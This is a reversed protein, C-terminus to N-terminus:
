FNDMQIEYACTSLSKLITHRGAQRAPCIRLQHINVVVV